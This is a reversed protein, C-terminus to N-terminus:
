AGLRKLINGISHIFIDAHNEDWNKMLDKYGASIKAEMLILTTFEHQEATKTYNIFRNYLDKVQEKKNM